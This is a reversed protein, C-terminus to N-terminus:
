IKNKEKNFYRNLAIKIIHAIKYSVKNIYKIKKKIKVQKKVYKM